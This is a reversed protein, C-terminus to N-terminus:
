KDNELVESGKLLEILLTIEMENLPIAIDRYSPKDNFGVVRYNELKKQLDFLKNYAQKHEVDGIRNITLYFKINDVMKLLKKIDSYTNQRELLKKIDSYTNQRELLKYYDSNCKGKTEYYIRMRQKDTEEIKEDLIKILEQKAM